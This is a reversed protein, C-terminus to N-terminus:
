VKNDKTAKQNVIIPDFSCYSYKIVYCYNGHRACKCNIDLLKFQRIGQIIQLICAHILRVVDM